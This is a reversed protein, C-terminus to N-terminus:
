DVLDGADDVYGFRRMVGAHTEVIRRVQDASLSDRWGGSRGLRFFREINPPAERFGDAAADEQRRVEDFSSFDIARRLREAEEPVGLAQVAGAFTGLPSALMDEYRVVHVPFASDLWSEVHGSWSLLRQRLQSPLGRVGSCFAYEANAMADITRDVSQGLHHAFSVAVDLPNRILYIALSTAEPPFLREGSSTVLNADHVKLYPTATASRALASYADPRLSDYEDHTFDAADVGLMESFLPRASAISRLLGSGAGLANISVPEPRDSLYNALFIRFWTNGSKPYSALWVIPHTPPTSTKTM